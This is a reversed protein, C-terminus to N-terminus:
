LSNTGEHANSHLASGKAKAPSLNSLDQYDGDEEEDILEEAAHIVAAKKRGSAQNQALKAADPVADDNAWIATRSRPQMVKLFEELEPDDADYAISSLVLAVSHM